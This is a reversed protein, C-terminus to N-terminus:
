TYSVPPVTLTLSQREANYVVRSDPTNLDICPGGEAADVHALRARVDDKLNLMDVMDPTVCFVTGDGIVPVARVLTQGQILRQDLYVDLLYGGPAVYGDRSFATLDINTKDKTNVFGTSFETAQAACVFTSIAVLFALRAQTM